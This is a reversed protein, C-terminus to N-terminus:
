KKKRRRVVRKKSKKVPKKRMILRTRPSLGVIGTLRTTTRGALEEALSPKYIQIINKSNKKNGKLQKKKKKKKLIPPVRFRWRFGGFDFYFYIQQPPFPQTLRQNVMQRLQLKQAPKLKQIIAQQLKSGEKIITKTATIIKVNPLTKTTLKPKTQTKTKGTTNLKLKSGTKLKSKDMVKLKTVVANKLEETIVGRNLSTITSTSLNTGQVFPILPVRGSGIKFGYRTVELAGSNVAQNVISKAQAQTQINLIDQNLKAKSKQKISYAKKAQQLVQETQANSKSVINGAKLDLKKNLKIKAKAQPSTTTRKYRAIQKSRKQYQLLSKIQTPTLDKAKVLKALNVKTGNIKKGRAIFGRLSNLQAKTLKKNKPKTKLKIKKTIRKPKVGLNKKVAKGSRQLELILKRLESKKTYKRASKTVTIGLKSLVNNIEAQNGGAKNVVKKLNVLQSTDLYPKKRLNVTGLKKRLVGVVDGKNRLTTRQFITIKKTGAKRGVAQVTTFKRLPRKRGKALKGGRKIVQRTLEKSVFGSKKLKNFLNPIFVTDAKSIGKVSKIALGAKQKNNMFNNILKKAQLRTWGFRAKFEAPSIKINDIFKVMEKLTEPSIAKSIFTSTETSRFRDKGLPNKTTPKRKIREAVTRVKKPLLFKGLKAIEKDLANALEPRRNKAKKLANGVLQVAQKNSKVGVTSTTLIEEGALKISVANGKFSATIPKPESYVVKKKFGKKVLKPTRVSGLNLRGRLVTETTEGTKRTLATLKGARGYNTTTEFVNKSKKVTDTVPEKLLTIKKIIPKFQTRTSKGVLKPLKLKGAGKYGIITGSLQALDGAIQTPSRTKLYVKVSLGAIGALLAIQKRDLGMVIKKGKNYQQVAKDRGTKRRLSEAFKATGVVFQATGVGAQAIGGVFKGGVALAGATNVTQNKRAQKVSDDLTESLEKQRGTLQTQVRKFFTSTGGLFGTDKEPETQVQTTQEQAQPRLIVLNGSEDFSFKDTKKLEGSKILRNVTEKQTEPRYRGARSKNIDAITIKRSNRKTRSGLSEATSRLRTITQTRREQKERNRELAQLRQNQQRTRRRSDINRIRNIEEARSNDRSFNVM